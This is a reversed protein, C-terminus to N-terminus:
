DVDESSVLAVGSNYHLFSLIVVLHRVDEVGVTVLFEPFIRCWGSLPFYLAFKERELTGAVDAFGQVSLESWGVGLARPEESLRFNM